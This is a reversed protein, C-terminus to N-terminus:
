RLAPLCPGNELGVYAGGIVVLHLPLYDLELRSTHSRDLLISTPFMDFSRRQRLLRLESARGSPLADGQNRWIGLWPRAVLAV